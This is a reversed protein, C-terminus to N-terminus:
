RRREVCVITWRMSPYQEIAALDSVNGVYFYSLPSAVLPVQNKALNIVAVVDRQDYSAEVWKPHKLRAGNADQLVPRYYKAEFSLLEELDIETTTKRLTLPYVFMPIRRNNAAESGSVFNLEALSLNKDEPVVKYATLYKENVQLSFAFSSGSQAPFGFDETM